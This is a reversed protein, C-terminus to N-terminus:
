WRVVEISFDTRIEEITKDLYATHESWPWRKSMRNARVLALSLYVPLKLINTLVHLVSYQRFLRFADAAAYGSLHGRFGLTTGFITFVKLVGEGVISTDCGFVVHAVDHCRFFAQAEPSLDDETSIATNKQRHRRVGERLTIATCDKM